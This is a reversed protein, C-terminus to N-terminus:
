VNTNSSRSDDEKELIYKVAEWLADCLEEGDWGVQVPSFQPDYEKDVQGWIAHNFVSDIYDEEGSSNEYIFEIM